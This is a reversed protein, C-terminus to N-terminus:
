SQVESTKVVLYKRTVIHKFYDCDTDSHMYMFDGAFLGDPNKPDASLKSAKIADDFAKSPDKHTATNSM